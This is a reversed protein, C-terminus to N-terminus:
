QKRRSVPRARILAQTSRCITLFTFTTLIALLPIGAVLASISVLQVALAPLWSAGIALWALLALAALGLPAAALWLIVTIPRVSM